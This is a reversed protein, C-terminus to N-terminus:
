NSIEILVFQFQFEIFNLLILKEKNGNYIEIYNQHFKEDRQSILAEEM